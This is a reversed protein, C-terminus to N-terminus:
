ERIQSDIYKIVCKKPIKYVRGIKFNSITQNHLLLLATSRSIGLMKILDKVSLVHTYESFVIENSNNQLM